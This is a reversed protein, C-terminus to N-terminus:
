SSSMPQQSRTSTMYSPATLRVRTPGSMVSCASIALARLRSVASAPDAGTGTHLVCAEPEGFLAARQHSQGDEHQHEGEVDGIVRCAESGIDNLGGGVLAHQESQDGHRLGEDHESGADVQRHAHDEDEAIAQGGVEQDARGDRDPEADDDDQQGPGDAAGDVGGDDDDAPQLGNDGGDGRAGCEEADGEPQSGKWARIRVKGGVEGVRQGALNEAEHRCTQDKQGRHDEEDPTGKRRETSPRM